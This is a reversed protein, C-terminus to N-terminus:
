CPEPFYDGHFGFPIHHPVRARAIETLDTADLVLLFSTGIASDLVVSLLVGADERESGPSPIFVPEGPYSGPESWVSRTGTELDVKLVQNFFDSDSGAGYVYRYPRGNRRDYDIRPLEIPAPPFPERTVDGGGLRLRYRRLESYPLPVQDSRLRDLYLARLIDANDYACLDLVIDGDREYANVHHFAFFPEGQCTAHLKGTALDIVSFRTGRHPKWHYNEIFPRGSLPIAVPVAVFPFEVLVAYNETVAFSHMYAPLQVPLEAIIRTQRTQSARAYLRYTSRPGFHVAYSVLEGSRPARHPHAVTLDGPAPPAVGLTDLTQPDFVVPLPTETMALFEEGSRVINVNANDGFSPSSFFTAFRKFLSRCPDTAFESYIMRGTDRASRYARSELFRNTYTVKGDAFAFRHLMALGDFWHNYSRPGVEFMAPGIRLLAGALWPPLTGEVSLSVRRLEQDLTQFGLRRGVASNIDDHRRVM